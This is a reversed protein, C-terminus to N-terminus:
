SFRLRRGLGTLIRRTTFTALGLFLKGAGNGFNANCAPICMVQFCYSAFKSYFPHNFIGALLVCRLGQVYRRVALVSGISAPLHAQSGSVASSLIPLLGQISEYYTGSLM